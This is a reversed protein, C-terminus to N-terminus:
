DAKEMKAQTAWVLLFFVDVWYCPEIGAWCQETLRSFLPTEKVPIWNSPCKPSKARARRPRSCARHVALVRRTGAGDGTLISGLNAFVGWMGTGELHGWSSPSSKAVGTATFRVLAGLHNNTGERDARQTASGSSSANRQVSSKQKPQRLFGCSLKTRVM